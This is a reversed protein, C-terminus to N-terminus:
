EDVKRTLPVFQLNLQYVEECDGETLHEVSAFIFDNVMKVFAEMREPNMALTAGMIRRRAIESEEIQENMVAVSKEIMRTHYQRTAPHSRDTPFQIKKGTKTWKGDVKKILGSAALEDIVERLQTLGIGLRKAIWREDSKFNSTTTLDLFAFHAWTKMLALQVFEVKEHQLQSQAAKDSKMLSQLLDRSRISSSGYIAVSKELLAFDPKEIALVESIKGLTEASPVRKGSLIQSAYGSSVGLDLAFKRLSYRPVRKQKGEFLPRLLDHPKPFAEATKM